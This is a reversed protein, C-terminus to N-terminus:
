EPRGLAVPDSEGVRVEEDLDLLVPADTAVLRDETAALRAPLRLPLRMDSPGVACRVQDDTPDHHQVVPADDLGVHPDTVSPDDREALAPVGVDHVADM